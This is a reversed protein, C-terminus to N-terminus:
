EKKIQEVTLGCEIMAYIARFDQDVEAFRAASIIALCRKRETAVAQKAAGEALTLITKGLPHIDTM